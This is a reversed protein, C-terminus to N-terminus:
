GKVKLIVKHKTSLELSNNRRILANSVSTNKWIFRDIKVWIEPTEIEKNHWIELTSGIPANELHTINPRKIEVLLFIPSEAGYRLLV